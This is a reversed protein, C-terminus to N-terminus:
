IYVPKVDNPGFSASCEPCKRHRTEIIRQICPNCFLHYCKTIVVQKPRDLCIGCKLIERYGILEKQLKGVVSSGDTQAKLCSAKRRAVELDEEIRKKDFRVKELEICLDAYSVRIKDVKIQSKELSQQAQQTIKSVDVVKKQVNELAVANKQREEALKQIQDDCVKVQDEVSATKMDFFDFLANAHQIEKEMTIKDMLLGDQMQKTKMGELFLKINYDDRETIQQLLHQNQNQMDDYAQGITEIESLYAENEEHKSNLVDSFQSLDRKSAEWKQRLDSIEAEAAALRQQSIAEAENATKVRLELRHEDLSSRLNRIHAWARYESDKAILIDRSDTSERKFMDLFLKLESDSEQLDHIAAHLKQIEAAQEASRASLDELKKAKRDLIDSFSHVAARLSHVDAAAEKFKGLQSQMTGMKNPFSAVLAKFEAVIQKRGPERSAEELKINILEREDLQKQVKAELENIRVNAFASSRQFIEFLDNKMNVDKEQWALNDKEVQLKEFLAQYQAVEAKSKALQNRLLLYAQSSSIYKINKITNQLNSLQKLIGIREEHLRMLEQLRYSAQGMLEKLSTEMDQLDKQKDRMRDGPFHKNGINLVQLFSGKSEDREAKLAALKCNSEELEAITKELEGRLHRIAAKSKADADQHCQIEKALSKHKLHLEGLMLRFNELEKKLDISVKCSGDEPLSKLVASHISDNLYWLCNIATLLNYLINDTRGRDTQGGVEVKDPCTASCSETAGTEVLRSLFDDELLSSAQDGAGIAHTVDCGQSVLDKTRISCSELGDVLSEWSRNVIEITTNYPRQREKLQRLKNELVSREVKQAELKQVLKQNQYQLVNAHLKRDETCPFFSQRKATVPTPPITDFHRRKRDPEGTSGM